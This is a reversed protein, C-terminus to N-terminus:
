RVRRRWLIALSLGLIATAAGLLRRPHNYAVRETRLRIDDSKM